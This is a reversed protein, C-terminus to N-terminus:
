NRAPGPSRAEMATLDDPHLRGTLATREFLDAGRDVPQVFLDDSQQAPASAIDPCGGCKLGAWRFHGGGAAQGGHEFDAPVPGSAFSEVGIEYLFEIPLHDSM